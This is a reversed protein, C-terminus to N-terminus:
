EEDNGTRTFVVCRPRPSQVAPGNSLEIACVAKVVAFIKEIPPIAKDEWKLCGVRALAELFEPFDMRLMHSIDNDDAGLLSADAEAQAAAFAQRAERNTLEDARDPYVWSILKAEKIITQFEGDSLETEDVLDMFDDPHIDDDPLGTESFALFIERLRHLNDHFLALVPDTTLTQKVEAGPLSREIM